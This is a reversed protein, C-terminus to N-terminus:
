WGKMAEIVETESTRLYAQTTALNSHGLAIRIYNVSKGQGAALTAFTRRLGHCTVDVFLRDAIAKVHKQLLRKDYPVGPALLFYTFGAPRALHYPKLYSLLVKSIGIKRDKGGKGHVEGSKM